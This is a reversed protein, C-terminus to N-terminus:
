PFLTRAELFRGPSRSSRSASAATSPSRALPTSSTATANNTTPRPRGAAPRGPVLGNGLVRYATVGIGLERVTPLIADEIGRELLSYEIQVDCIPAVAAARRITDADVESLGIHRVHGEEVLEAIAGVTDEIPV